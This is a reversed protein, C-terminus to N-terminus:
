IQSAGPLAAHRVLRLRVLISALAAIYSAILLAPPATVAIAGLPSVLLGLLLCERLPLRRRELWWPNKGVVLVVILVALLPASKPERWLVAVLLAFVLVAFLRIPM